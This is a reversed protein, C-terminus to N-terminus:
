AHGEAALEEGPCATIVYVLDNPRLKRALPPCTLVTPLQRHANGYSVLAVCIVGHVVLAAEFLECFERGILHPPMPLATLHTRRLAASAADAADAASGGSAGRRAAAPAYVDEPCPLTLKKVLSVVSPELYAHNILADLARMSFVRGAAFVPHYASDTYARTTYVPKLPVMAVALQRGLRRLWDLSPLLACPLRRPAAAAAAAAAPRAGATRSAAAVPSAAAAAAARAPPQRAVLANHAHPGPRLFRVNELYELELVAPNALTGFAADLQLYALIAQQDVLHVDSASALATAGGMASRQSVPPAIIVLTRAASMNARSLHGKSVFSGKMWHCGHPSARLLKSWEQPEPRDFTLILLKTGASAVRLSAAFIAVGGWDLTGGAISLVVHGSWGACVAPEVSEILPHDRQAHWRLAHASQDAGGAHEDEDEESDADFDIADTSLRSLSSRPAVVPTPAQWGGFAWGLPSFASASAATAARAHSLQTEALLRLAPMASHTAQELASWGRALRPVHAWVRASVARTEAVVAALEARWDDATLRM